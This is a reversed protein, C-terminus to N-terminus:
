KESLIKIILYILASELALEYSYKYDNGKLTFNDNSITYIQYNWLTNGDENHCYIECHYDHKERLFKQLDPQKPVDNYSIKKALEFTERTIM